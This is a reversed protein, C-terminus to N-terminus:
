RGHDAPDQSHASLYRRMPLIWVNNNGNDWSEMRALDAVIQARSRGPSVNASRGSIFFLTEGDPSIQAEGDDYGQDDPYRLPIPSTWRGDHAFTVFLHEHGDNMPPRDRSSFILYSQDPAIAPDVDAFRGDSFSLSRASAYEGRLMQSRYLRWKPAAPAGPGDDSMFFLDGNAAISPKFVRRSINETVPLEVPLSWGGGTHTVRWLHAAPVAKGGSDPLVERRMSVYILTRGDPSLAPQQDSMPGSFSAVAAPSWHGERLDSTVIISWKDNSREFFATRGDPTFTPAGDNAPGSIEGPAFITPAPLTVDQAAAGSACLSAAGIFWLYRSLRVMERVFFQGETAIM